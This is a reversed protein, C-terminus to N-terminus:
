YTYTFGITGIPRVRDDDNLLRLNDGLVQFDVGGHVELTGAKGSVAEVSLQGGANFYGFANNGTPGEYYDKVSLGLRLPVYLTTRSAIPFGPKGALELYVGKHEGGDAQADSLEFALLVRPSFPIPSASDDFALVGALEHVTSFNDAPSTYSTYLAGPKLKGATFNVAAYYDSEYWHGAPATQHLSDWNGVNLSIGDTVAIGLDVYPQAIFGSNQQTIGRFLYASTFDVGTTMTVRKDPAAEVPAAGTPMQGADQARAAGPLLLLMLASWITTRMKM